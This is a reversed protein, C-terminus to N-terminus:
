NPVAFALCVSTGERNRSMRHPQFNTFLCSKSNPLTEESNDNSIKGKWSSANLPDQRISPLPPTDKRKGLNVGSYLRHVGGLLLGGGGSRGDDGVRLRNRPFSQCDIISSYFGSSMKLVEMGGWKDREGPIIFGEM